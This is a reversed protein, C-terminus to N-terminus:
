ARASPGLRSRLRMVYGIVEAVAAYHEAPVEEDIDCAAYLARALPPNEVVPVGHETALGRIRLALADVGKAVVRPAAMQGHEYKLAVAYHTPNMLVVDAAPVAAMMRRRSREIRIQRIRGKVHPDGESQKYEDKLDQRSMRMRKMFAFRQYLYDAGALIAVIITVALLLKVILGGILATLMNPDAFLVDELRRSYPWVVTVAVVSVIAFKALTKGFEVFTSMGFLRKFGGMPSLKSWKPAVKDWSITPRGQGIGGVLAAVFLLALSPALILGVRFVLDTALRHAGGTDLTFDQADGWLRTAMPLMTTALLGTLLMTVALAGGFMAVHKAEQSRPVDGKKRADDLRKQSPEETKQEDDTEDAM